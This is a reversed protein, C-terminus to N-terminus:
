RRYGQKLAGPRRSRPPTTRPAYRAWVWRPQEGSKRDKLAQARLAKRAARRKKITGARLASRFENNPRAM